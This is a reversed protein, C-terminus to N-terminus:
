KGGKVRKTIGLALCVVESAGADLLLKRCGMFSTGTTVIDDLLLVVRSRIVSSDVVKISDLHRHINERDAEFPLGYKKVLPKYIRASQSRSISQHRILSSIADVRGNQALGQIVERLGLSTTSPDSSPIMCIPFGESLIEDLKGVFYDVATSLAGKKLNLIHSTHNGRSAVYGGTLGREPHYEGLAWITCPLPLIRNWQRWRENEGKDNSQKGIRKHFLTATSRFISELDKCHDIEQEAALERKEQDHLRIRYKSKGDPNVKGGKHLETVCDIWGEYGEDRHKVRTGDPFPKGDM